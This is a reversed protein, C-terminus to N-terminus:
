GSPYMVAILLHSCKFCHTYAPFPLLVFQETVATTPIQALTEKKLGTKQLSFYYNDDTRVLLLVVVVDVVDLTDTVNAILLASHFDDYYWMIM